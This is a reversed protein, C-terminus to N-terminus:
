LDYAEEWTMTDVVNQEEHNARDLLVLDSRLQLPEMHYINQLRPKDLM